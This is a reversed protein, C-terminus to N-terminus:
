QKDELFALQERRHIPDREIIEPTVNLAQWAEEEDANQLADARPIIYGSTIFGGPGHTLNVFDGSTWKIISVGNSFLECKGAQIIAVPMTCSAGRLWRMTKKHRKAGKLM